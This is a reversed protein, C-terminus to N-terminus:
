QADALLAESERTMLLLVKYLPLLKERIEDHKSILYLESFLERWRLLEWRRNGDSCHVTLDTLEFAREICERVAEISGDTRTLNKIRNLECAIMLIQQYFPFNMWKEATMTKHLLLKYM